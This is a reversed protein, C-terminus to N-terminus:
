RSLFSRLSRWTRDRLTVLWIWLKSFWPLQMLKPKLVRFLREVILLSGLYAVIMTATGIMWHGEGAIVLAVLKLPEVIVLPLIVVVLSQYPGLRAFQRFHM